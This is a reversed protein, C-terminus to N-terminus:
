VVQSMCVSLVSIGMFCQNPYHVETEIIEPKEPKLGAEAAQSATKYGDCSKHDLNLGPTRFLLSVYDLELFGLNAISKNLFVGNFEAGSFCLEM